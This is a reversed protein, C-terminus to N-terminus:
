AALQAAFETEDIVGAAFLAMIVSQRDIAVPVPALRPIPLPEVTPEIKAHIPVRIPEPKAALAQKLYPRWAPGAEALVIPLAPASGSLGAVKFAVDGTGTIALINTGAAALAAVRFREAATATFTETGAAALAAVKFVISGTGTIPGTAVDQFADDQFADNQFANAM